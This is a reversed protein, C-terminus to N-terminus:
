CARNFMALTVDVWTSSIECLYIDHGFRLLVLTMQQDLDTRSRSLVSQQIYGFEHRGM